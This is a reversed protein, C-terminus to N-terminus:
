NREYLEIKQNLNGIKAEKQKILLKLMALEDIQTDKTKKYSSYALSNNAHDATLSTLNGNM